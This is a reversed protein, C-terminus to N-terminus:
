TSRMRTQRVRAAPTSTNATGGKKPRSAFYASRVESSKHEKWDPYGVKVEDFIRDFLQRIIGDDAVFNDV